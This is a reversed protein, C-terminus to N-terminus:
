RVSSATVSRSSLSFDPQFQFPASRAVRAKNNTPLPPGRRGVGILDILNPPESRSGFSCSDRRLPCGGNSDGHHLSGVFPLRWPRVEELLLEGFQNAIM